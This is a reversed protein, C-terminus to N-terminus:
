RVKPLEIIFRCGAHYNADIIIDGGLNQIHRKALALGLGLGETLDNVKTFMEFLRDSDEAAIGPGTDEVIFRVMSGMESVRLSINQGDSYKAANYLLERISRM